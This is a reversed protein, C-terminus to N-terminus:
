IKQSLSYFVGVTERLSHGPYSMLGDSPTTGAKFIQSIHFVGENGNCGPGSKCPTTADSQIRDIPWISCVIHAFLRSINVQSQLIKISSVM